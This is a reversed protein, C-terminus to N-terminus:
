PNDVTVPPYIRIATIPTKPQEIVITGVRRVPDNDNLALTHDQIRDEEPIHINQPDTVDVYLGLLRRTVIIRSL